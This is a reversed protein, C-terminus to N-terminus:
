KVWIINETFFSNQHIPSLLQASHSLTKNFHENFSPKQKYKETELLYSIDSSGKLLDIKRNYKRDSRLLEDAIKSTSVMNNRPTSSYGSTRDDSQVMPESMKKLFLRESQANLKPKLTLEPLFKQFRPSSDFNLLKQPVYTMEENVKIGQVTTKSEKKSSTKM